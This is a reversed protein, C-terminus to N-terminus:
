GVGFSRGNHDLELVRKLLYGLEFLLGEHRTKRCSGALGVPLDDGIIRDPTGRAESWQLPVGEKKALRRSYGCEAATVVAVDLDGRQIAQCADLLLAQSHSGGFPTMATEASDAGISQALARGPDGYRWGGNVVRLSATRGLLAPVCSDDGAARISELMLELPELSQSLSEPRQDSQGIGVIVPSQDSLSM